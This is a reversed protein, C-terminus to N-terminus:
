SLASSAHSVVRLSPARDDGGLRRAIDPMPCRLGGSKTMPWTEGEGGGKNLCNRNRVKGSFDRDPGGEARYSRRAAGARPSRRIGSQAPMLYALSVWSRTSGQFRLFGDVSAWSPWTFSQVVAEAWRPTGREQKQREAPM